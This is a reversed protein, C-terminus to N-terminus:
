LFFANEPGKKQIFTLSLLQKLNAIYSDRYECVRKLSFNSGHNVNEFEM